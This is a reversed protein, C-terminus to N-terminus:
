RAIAEVREAPLCQISGCGPAFSSWSLNNASGPLFPIAGGDLLSPVGRRLDVTVSWPEGKDILFASIGRSSYFEGTIGRFDASTEVVRLEPAVFALSDLSGKEKKTGFGLVQFCCAMLALWVMFVIGANKRKM